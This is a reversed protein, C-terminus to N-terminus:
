GQENKRKPVSIRSRDMGFSTEEVLITSARSLSERAEARVKELNRTM